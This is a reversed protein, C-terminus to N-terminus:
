KLYGATEYIYSYISWWFMFLDSCPTREPKRQETPQNFFRWGVQGGLWHNQDWQKFQGQLNGDKNRYLNLKSWKDCTKEKSDGSPRLRPQIYHYLKSTLLLTESIQSEQINELRFRSFWLFGGPPALSCWQTKRRFWNFCFRRHNQITPGVLVLPDILCLDERLSLHSM